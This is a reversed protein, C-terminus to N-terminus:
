APRRSAPLDADARRILEAPGDEPELAAFGVKIECRDPDAALAAQVADFRQRADPITAGSMVCLFEDGGIRVISDYSRLHGRIARVARQLLADGASHGHTDNVAKLGVVDVYAVVLLGTTRRARDIERALDALGPARTRTGTLADIEATALQQLLADRDAQAQVRDLAAQERDRQAQVRDAAARARGEAAAARDAAARKRNEAARLVIEAGTMARGADTWSADRAALGHDHLAAAADRAAAALDRAHAVADRSAAAEVRARAAQRRQVASRDRLDRTVHHVGADGGHVLDRDSAEQDSDAAAQDSDAATQDSDSATQDADALTQDRDALTQDDDPAGPVPTVSEQQGDVAGNTSDAPGDSPTPDAV